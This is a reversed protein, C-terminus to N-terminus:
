ETYHGLAELGQLVRELTSPKPGGDPHDDPEHIYVVGRDALGAAANRIVDIPTTLIAAIEALARPRECLEVILLEVTSASALDHAQVDEATTLLTELRPERAPQSPGGTIPHPGSVGLRSGTTDDTGAADIAPSFAEDSVPRTGRDALPVLVGALLDDPSWLTDDLTVRARLDALGAAVDFVPPQPDAQHARRLLNRTTDDPETM